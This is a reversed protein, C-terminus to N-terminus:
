GEQYRGGGHPPPHDDRVLTGSGIMHALLELQDLCQSVVAGPHRANGITGVDEREESRGRVAGAADLHARCDDGRVSTM